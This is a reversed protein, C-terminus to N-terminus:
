VNNGEGIRRMVNQVEVTQAVSKARKDSPVETGREDLSRIRRGEGTTVFDFNGISTDFLYTFDLSKPVIGSPRVIDPLFYESPVTVDTHYYGRYNRFDRDQLFDPLKVPCQRLLDKNELPLLETAKGSPTDAALWITRM